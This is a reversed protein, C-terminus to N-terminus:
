KSSKWKFEDTTIIAPLMDVEPMYLRLDPPLQFTFGTVALRQNFRTNVQVVYQRFLDLLDRLIPQNVQYRPHSVERPFLLVLRMNTDTFVFRVIVNFEDQSVMKLPYNYWFLKNNVQQWGRGTGDAQGWRHQFTQLLLRLKQVAFSRLHTLIDNVNQSVSSNDLLRKAINQTLKITQGNRTLFYFLDGVKKYGLNDGSNVVVRPNTGFTVKKGTYTIIQMKEM